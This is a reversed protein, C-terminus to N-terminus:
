SAASPAARLIGPFLPEAPPEHGWTSMADYHGISWPKDVDIVRRRIRVRDRIGVAHARLVLVDRRQHAQGTVDGGAPTTAAGPLHQQQVLYYAQRVQEPDTVELMLHHFGSM